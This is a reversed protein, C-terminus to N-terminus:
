AAASPLWDAPETAEDTSLMSLDWHVEFLLQQIQALADFVRTRQEDKLQVDREHVPLLTLAFTRLAGIVEPVDGYDEIVLKM